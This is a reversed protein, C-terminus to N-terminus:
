KRCRKTIKLDLQPQNICRVDHGIVREQNPEPAGYPVTGRDFISQVYRACDCMIGYIEAGEPVESRCFLRAIKYSFQV